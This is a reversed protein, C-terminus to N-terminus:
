WRSDGAISVWCGLHCTSWATRMSRPYPLSPYCFPQTHAVLIKTAIRLMREARVWGGVWGGGVVEGVELELDKPVPLAYARVVVSAMVPAGGDTVAYVFTDNLGPAGSPGLPDLAGLPDAVYVVGPSSAEGKAVGVIPDGPVLQRGDM